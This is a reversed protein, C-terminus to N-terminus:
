GGLVRRLEAGLRKADIPKAVYGDAGAQLMRRQDEPLDHATVMIVPTRVAGGRERARLERLAQVGDMGPMTVDLLAVDFHQTALARLAQEGDQVLVGSHGMERLIRTALRLNLPNDDAVLVRLSRAPRHNTSM